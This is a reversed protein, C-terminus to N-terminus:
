ENCKRSFLPPPDSGLIVFTLSKKKFAKGLIYYQYVIDGEAEAIGCFEDTPIRNGFGDDFKKEKVFIELDVLAAELM